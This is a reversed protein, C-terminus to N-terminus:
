IYISVLISLLTYTYIYVYMYVCVLVHVQIHVHIHIDIYINHVYIYVYTSPNETRYGHIKARAKLSALVSSEITSNGRVLMSRIAKTFPSDEPGEWPIFVTLKKSVTLKQYTSWTMVNYVKSICM